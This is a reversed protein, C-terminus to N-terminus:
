RSKVIEQYTSPVFILFFERSQGTCSTGFLVLTDTWGAAPAIRLIMSESLKEKGDEDISMRLVRWRLVGDRKEKWEKQITGDDVIAWVSAM